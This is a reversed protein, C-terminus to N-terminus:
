MSESISSIQLQMISMDSGLQNLFDYGVQNMLIM